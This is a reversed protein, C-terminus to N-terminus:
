RRMVNALNWEMKEDSGVDGNLNIVQNFQAQMTQALTNLGHSLLALLLYSRPAMKDFFSGSPSKLFLCPLILYCILLLV